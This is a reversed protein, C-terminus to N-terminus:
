LWWQSGHSLVIFPDSEKTATMVPSRDDVIGSKCKISWDRRKKKRKWIQWTAECQRNIDSHGSAQGLEVLHFIHPHMVMALIYGSCSRCTWSSATEIVLYVFGYWVANRQLLAIEWVLLRAILRVIWSESWAALLRGRILKRFFGMLTLGEQFRSICEIYWMWVQPYEVRYLERGMVSPRSNSGSGRSALRPGLVLRIWTVPGIYTGSRSIHFVWHISQQSSRSMIGGLPHVSRSCIGYSSARLM